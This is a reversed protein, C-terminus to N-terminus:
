SVLNLLGALFEENVFHKEFMHRPEYISNRGDWVYELFKEGEWMGQITRLEPLDKSGLPASVDVALIIKAKPCHNLWFEFSCRLLSMPEGNMGTHRWPTVSREWSSVTAGFLSDVSKKESIALILASIAGGRAVGM